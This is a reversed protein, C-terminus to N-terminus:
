TYVCVLKVDASKGTAHVAIAELLRSLSFYPDSATGLDIYAPGATRLARLHARNEHPVDLGCFRGHVHDFATFANMMTQTVEVAPGDDHMFVRWNNFVGQFATFYAGYSVHRGLVDAPLMTATKRAMNITDEAVCVLFASTLM